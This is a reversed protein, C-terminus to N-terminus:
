LFVLSVYIKYLTKINCWFLAKQVKLANSIFMQKVCMDMLKCKYWHDSFSLASNTHVTLESSKVGSMCLELM